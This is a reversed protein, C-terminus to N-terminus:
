KTVDRPTKRYLTHTGCPFGAKQRALYAAEIAALDAREARSSMQNGIGNM